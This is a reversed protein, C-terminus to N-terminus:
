ITSNECWGKLKLLGLWQFFLIGPNYLEVILPERCSPESYGGSKHLGPPPRKRLAKLRRLAHVGSAFPAGLFVELWVSVAHAVPYCRIIRRPISVDQSSVAAATTLSPVVMKDFM